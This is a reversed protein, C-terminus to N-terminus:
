GALELVFQGLLETAEAGLVCGSELLCLRAVM